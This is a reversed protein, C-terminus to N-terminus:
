QMCNLQEGAAHGLKVTGVLCAQYHRNQVHQMIGVREVSWVCFKGMRPMGVCRAM